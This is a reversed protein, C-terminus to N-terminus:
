EVVRLGWGHMSDLDDAGETRSRGVLRCDLSQDLGTHIDSSQVEGMAGVVVVSDNALRHTLRRLLQTGVDGHQQVELSGLDAEARDGGAGNVEVAPLPEGQSSAGYRAVSGAHRRRIGVEGLVDPGAVRQQQIIPRNPQARQLNGRGVNHALDDVAPCETRM